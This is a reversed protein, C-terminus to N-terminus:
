GKEVFLEQFELCKGLSKGLLSLIQLDLNLAVLSLVTAERAQNILLLIIRSAHRNTECAGFLLTVVGKLSKNKLLFNGLLQLPFALSILLLKGSQLVGVQGNKTLAVFGPANNQVKAAQNTSLAVVHLM